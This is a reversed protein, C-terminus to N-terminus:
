TLVHHLSFADNMSLRAVAHFLFSSRNSTIIGRAVLRERIRVPKHVSVMIFRATFVSISRQFPLKLGGTILLVQVKNHDDINRLFNIIVYAEFTTKTEILPFLKSWFLDFEPRM